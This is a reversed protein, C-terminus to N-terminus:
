KESRQPRKMMMASPSDIRTVPAVKPALGQAAPVIAAKALAKRPVSAM